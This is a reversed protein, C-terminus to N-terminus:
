TMSFSEDAGNTPNISLEERTALVTTDELDVSCSLFYHLLKAEVTEDSGNVVVVSIKNNSGTVPSDLNDVIVGVLSSFNHVRV